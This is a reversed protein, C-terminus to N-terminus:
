NDLSNGESDVLLVKAMDLEIIIKNILYDTRMEDGIKKYWCRKKIFIIVARCFVVLIACTKQYYSDPPM